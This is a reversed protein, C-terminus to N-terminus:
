KIFGINKLIDCGECINATYNKAVNSCAIYQQITFFLLIITALLVVIYVLNIVEKRELKMNIM